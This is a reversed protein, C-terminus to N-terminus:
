SQGKRSRQSPMTTWDGCTSLSVGPNARDVQAPRWYGRRRPWCRCWVLTGCAATSPWRVTPGTWGTVPCAPGTRRSSRTRQPSGWPGFARRNVPGYLHVTPTRVAVALHLPGSDPGIVLASRRYVAALAGLSTQGALSIPPNPWPQGTPLLALVPDILAAEGASGPCVVQAGYDAALRAAFEAWAASRSRKVVQVAALISRWWRGALRGPCFSNGRLWM